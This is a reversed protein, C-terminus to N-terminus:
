PAERVLSLKERHEGLVFSVQVLRCHTFPIKKQNEAGQKAGSLENVAYM